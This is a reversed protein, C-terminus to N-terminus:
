SSSEIEYREIYTRVGANEDVIESRFTLMREFIRGFPMFAEDM